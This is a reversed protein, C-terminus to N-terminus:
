KPVVFGYEMSGPPGDYAKMKATRFRSEVCLAEPTAAYPPKDIAASEVTGDNRFRVTIKGMGSTGGPRRCSALIGNVVDLAAKAAAPEFGTAPAPAPPTSGPATSSPRPAVPPTGPTTSVSGAHAGASAAPAAEAAATAVPEAPVAAAGSAAPSEPALATLPAPSASSPRAAPDSPAEGLSGSPGNTARYIGYAVGSLMAVAIVVLGVLLAGRSPASPTVTTLDDPRAGPGNSGPAMPLPTPAPFPPPPSHLPPAHGWPGPPVPSGGLSAALPSTRVATAAVYADHEAGSGAPPAGYVGSVQPEVQVPASQGFQPVGPAPPISGRASEGPLLPATSMRVTRAPARGSGYAGPPGPPISGTPPVVSGPRLVEVAPSSGQPVLGVPPAVSPRGSVGRPGSSAMAHPARGSDADRRMANKLVGWLEGADQPRQRPNVSLARALTVEVEDGVPIGLARPTPRVHEDLAKMAFEGIHEGDMVTRDRLAEV